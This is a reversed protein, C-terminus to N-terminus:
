TDRSRFAAWWTRCAHLLAVGVALYVLGIVAFYSDPANFHYFVDPIVVRLIIGTGMMVSVLIWTRLPYFGWWPAGPGRETIRVVSRRAMKDLIFFGKAFGFGIFPVALPLAILGFGKFMWLLGFISLMAGVATWISAALLRQVPRTDRAAGAARVPATDEAPVTV